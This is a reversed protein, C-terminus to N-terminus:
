GFHLPCPAHRGPHTQGPPTCGRTRSGSVSVGRFGSASVGLGLPLCRGLGLPLGGLIRGEVVSFDRTATFQWKRNKKLDHGNDSGLVPACWNVDTSNFQSGFTKNLTYQLDKFAREKNRLEHLLNLTAFSHSISNETVKKQKRPLM